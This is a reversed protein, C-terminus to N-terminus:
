ESNPKPIWRFEIDSAEIIWRSGSNSPFGAWEIEHILRGNSSLRFEDYLWDGLGKGCAASEFTWAFVKPYVFEIYGDHYAALLRTHITTAREEGPDGIESIVVNDLWGDHPCRHENPNHYWDATALAYAGPPFEGKHARLYEQYRRYASVVDQNREKALYYAM